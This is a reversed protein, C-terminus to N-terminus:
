PSSVTASPAQIFRYEGIGEVCIFSCPTEGRNSTCHVTLPNVVLIDGPRLRLTHIQRGNEGRIIEPASTCLSRYPALPDDPNVEITVTLDGAMVYFVDQTSPHYHPTSTEGPRIAIRALHVGEEIRERRFFLVGGEIAAQPRVESM